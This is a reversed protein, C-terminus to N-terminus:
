GTQMPEASQLSIADAEFDSLPQYVKLDYGYGNFNQLILTEPYTDAPVPLADTHKGPAQRATLTPASNALYDPTIQGAAPLQDTAFSAQQQTDTQLTNELNTAINESVPHARPVHIIDSTALPSFSHDANIEGIVASYTSAALPLHIKQQKQLGEVAIDFSLKFKDPDTDPDALSYIRLALPKDVHEITQDAEHQKLNWYVYLNFPDVPMLVLEPQHHYDYPAYEQTIKESIDLLSQQSLKCHPDHKSQWLKM